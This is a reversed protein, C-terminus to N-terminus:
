YFCHNVSFFSKISFFNNRREVHHECTVDCAIQTSPIVPTIIGMFVKLFYNKWISKAYNKM